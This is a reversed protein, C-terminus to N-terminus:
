LGAIPATIGSLCQPRKGIWRAAHSRKRKMEDCQDTAISFQLIRESQKWKIQFFYQQTLQLFPAPLSRYICVKRHECRAVISLQFLQQREARARHDSAM